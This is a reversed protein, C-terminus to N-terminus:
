DKAHCAGYDKNIEAVVFERPANAAARKQRKGKLKVRNGPRVNATNGTLTYVTPDASEDQLTLGDRGSVTCGKITPPTRLVYHYLLFGGGVAVGGLVVLIAAAQGPSPGVSQAKAPRSATLLGAILIIISLRRPSTRM